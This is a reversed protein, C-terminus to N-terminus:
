QMITNSALMKTLVKEINKKAKMEDESAANSIKNIKRKLLQEFELREFCHSCSEIHQMLEERAKGKLYNDLFINLLETAEECNIKKIATKKNKM